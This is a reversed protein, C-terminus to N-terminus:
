IASAFSFPLELALAEAEGVPQVRIQIQVRSRDRPDPLVSVQIKKADIRLEQTLAELVYLKALDRQTASNPQGVLEYLRSGYAPHGLAALEGRRTLLRSLLSQRLNNVGAATDLDQYPTRSPPVRHGPATQLDPSGRAAETGLYARYISLDSGLFEQAM